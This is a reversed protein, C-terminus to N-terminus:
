SGEKLARLILTSPRPAAGGAGLELLRDVRFNTRALSTHWGGITRETGYPSEDSVTAFPHDVVIVFPREPKLIRHVQRFLRGLDDVDGITRNAVVVDCTASTIDGLDALDTEFCQVSVEHEAAKARTLAIQEPDPDVAIAKAGARAMALANYESSIGLEVARRGDGLDGCLRLEADDPLGSGYNIAFVVGTHDDDRHHVRVM